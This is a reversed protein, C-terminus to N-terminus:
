SRGGSRIRPATACETETRLWDVLGAVIEAPPAAGTDVVHDAAAAYLPEREALAATMWARADGDLWPRHEGGAAREVLEDAGARLWVVIGGDRLAARDAAELIVGAAVGVIAPTQQRLGDRLADSEAGRMAAEGREALLQRPTAGTARRVLDDNDAYTWGTADALLRGITSKGSGMMGILLVRCPGAVTV